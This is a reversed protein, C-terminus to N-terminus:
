SRTLGLQDLRAAEDPRTALREVQKDTLFNPGGLAYTGLLVRALKVSMATVTEVEQASVGLAVLGHNQMWIAKPCEGYTGKYDRVSQAVRRALPVGPDVFPVWVPAVGCCVIEDPFIRGSIAEEAQQSCVIANVAVPHTHGVFNVGPEQLLLAHMLTEVSPRQEDENDVCAELLVQKILEDSPHEADVLELVPAFRVRVFGEATITPLQAGSAKVWFAEEDIRASTNGEGLIVCDAAPEGLARSMEVLEARLQERDSM